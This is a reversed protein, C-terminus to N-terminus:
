LYRDYRKQIKKIQDAAYPTISDIDGIALRMEERMNKKLQEKAERQTTFVKKRGRSDKVTWITGARWSIM